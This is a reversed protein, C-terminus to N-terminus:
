PSTISRVPASKRSRPLSSTAPHLVRVILSLLVAASDPSRAAPPLLVTQPGTSSGGEVGISGVGPGAAPVGAEADRSVTDNLPSLLSSDGLPLPAGVALADPARAVSDVIALGLSSQSSAASGPSASRGLDTKRCSLEWALAKTADARLAAVLSGSRTALSVDSFRSFCLTDLVADPRASPGPCDPCSM